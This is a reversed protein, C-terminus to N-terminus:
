PPIGVYWLTQGDVEFIKYRDRKVSEVFPSPYSYGYALYGGNADWLELLYVPQYTRDIRPPTMDHPRDLISAWDAEANVDLLTFLSDSEITLDQIPTTTIRVKSPDVFGFILLEPSQFATTAGGVPLCAHGSVAFIESGTRGDNAIITGSTQYKVYLGQDYSTDSMADRSSIELGIVSQATALTIVLALTVVILKGNESRIRRLLSWLGMGAFVATFPIIYYGTYQRLSLTPILVLLVILLFAEKFGKGRSRHISVAGIPVFVVLAGASRGLSVVLNTVQAVIGSGVSIRGGQYSQLVGGVVLLAVSAAFFAGLLFVSSTTRFRKSLVRSAFRIRLTKAIIIIIATIVGALVVAAM